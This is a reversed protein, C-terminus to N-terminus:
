EVVDDAATLQGNEYRYVHIPADQWYGDEFQITGNLGEYAMDSIARDVSERDPQNAQLLFRVADYTLTALLGPPPAFPDSSRYRERFSADPLSGSSLVTVDSLSERLEAFGPLAFAEGGTVPASLRAADNVSITPPATLRATLEPSSLIYVREAPLAATWNGVVLVPLDDFATLAQEDTASYGLVVAATISYDLAVARARDAAREPTGGDDLPLFEYQSSEADAFALRGAYLADYGVERYRGEFPALLAIRYVPPAGAVACGCLFLALAAAGM